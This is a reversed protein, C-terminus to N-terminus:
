NFDGWSELSEVDLAYALIEFPDNNISLDFAVLKSNIGLNWQPFNYGRTIFKINGGGLFQLFSGQAPSLELENSKSADDTHGPKVATQPTVTVQTEQTEEYNILVGARVMQKGATVDGQDFFPSKLKHVPYHPEVFLEKLNHLDAGFLRYAGQYETSCMLRLDDGQSGIFWKGDFSVILIIKRPLGVDTNNPDRNDPDLYTVM